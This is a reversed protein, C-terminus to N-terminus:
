EINHPAKVRNAEYKSTCEARLSNLDVTRLRPSQDPKTLADEAYTLSARAIAAGSLSLKGASETCDPEAILYPRKEFFSFDATGDLIASTSSEHDIAWELSEIAHQISLVRNEKPRGSGGDVYHTLAADLDALKSRLAILPESRLSSSVRIAAKQVDVWDTQRKFYYHRFIALMAGIMVVLAILINSTKM